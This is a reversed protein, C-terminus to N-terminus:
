RSYEWLAWAMYKLTWGAQEADLPKDHPNQREMISGLAEAVAPGPRNSLSSGARRIAEFLAANDTLAGASIQSALTGLAEAAPRAQQFPLKAEEIAAKLPALTQLWQQDPMPYPNDPRPPGPTPDPRDDGEVTVVVSLPTVSFQKAAWDVVIMQGVLMKQGASRPIFLAHGDRIHPAGAQLELQPSWSFAANEPLDTISYWVAEGVKCSTPGDITQAVAPAALCAAAVIATLIGYAFRM